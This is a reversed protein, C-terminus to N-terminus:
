GSRASHPDDLFLYHTLAALWSAFGKQPGRHAQEGVLMHIGRDYDDVYYFPAIRDERAWYAEFYAGPQDDHLLRDPDPIRTQRSNRWTSAISKWTGGEEWFDM